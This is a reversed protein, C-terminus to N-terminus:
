TLNSPLLRADLREALEVLDLSHQVSLGIAYQGRYSECYVVEGLLMLDGIKLQVATRPTIQSGTIVRMGGDSANEIRGNFPHSSTGLIAVSVHRATAIRQSRRREETIPETSPQCKSGTTETACLKDLM